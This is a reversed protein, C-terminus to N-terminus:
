GACVLTGNDLVACWHSGISISIATRGAGVSVALPAGTYDQAGQGGTYYTGWCYVKGVDSLICLGYGWSSVTVPKTLGLNSLNPRIFKNGFGAGACWLAGAVTIACSWSQGVFIRTVYGDIAATTFQLRDNTDGLGLNGWINSGKCM